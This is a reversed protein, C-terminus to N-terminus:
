SEWRRQTSNPNSTVPGKQTLHMRFKTQISQYSLMALM